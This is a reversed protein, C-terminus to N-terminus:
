GGTNHIPISGSGFGSQCASGLGLKVCTQFNALLKKVKIWLLALQCHKEKGMLPLQTMIKHIKSLIKFNEHFFYFICTNLTSVSGLRGSGSRLARSASESGSGAFHHPDSRIRIWLVAIKGVYLTRYTEWDVWASRPFPFTFGFVFDTDSVGKCIRWLSYWVRRRRYMPPKNLFKNLKGSFFSKASAYRYCEM